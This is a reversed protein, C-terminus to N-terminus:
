RITNSHKYCKCTISIYCSDLLLLYVLIYVFVTSNSSRSPQAPGPRAPIPYKSSSTNTLGSASQPPFAVRSRIFFCMYLVGLSLFFSYFFFIFHLNRFASGLSTDSTNRSTFTPNYSWILGPASHYQGPKALVLKKRKLDLGPWTNDLSIKVTQTWVFLIFAESVYFHTEFLDSAKILINLM